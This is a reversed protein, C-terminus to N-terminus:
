GRIKLGLYPCVSLTFDSVAFRPHGNPTLYGFRLKLTEFFKCPVAPGMYVFPPDSCTKTREITQKSGHLRPRFVFLYVFWCVFIQFFLYTFLPNIVEGTIFTLADWPIQGEALFMKLNDLASERDSDNFEYQSFDHFSSVNDPSSM